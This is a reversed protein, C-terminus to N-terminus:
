SPEGRKTFPWGSTDSGVWYTWGTSPEGTKWLEVQELLVTGVWIV